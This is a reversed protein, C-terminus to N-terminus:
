ADALPTGNLTDCIDKAVALCKEPTSGLAMFYIHESIDVDVRRVFCEYLPWQSPQVVESITFPPRPRPRPLPLPRDPM